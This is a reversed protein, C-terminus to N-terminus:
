AGGGNISQTSTYISSAGGGDINRTGTPITGGGGGGSMNITVASNSGNTILVKGTTRLDILNSIRVSVTNTNVIVITEPIIVESNNDILTVHVIDSNLNHNFLIQYYSGITIWDAITFTKQFVSPTSSGKINKWTGNDYVILDGNTPATITPKFYGQTAHNEWGFATQGNNIRYDNGEVATNATSGYTVNVSGSAITTGTGAKVIGLTAGNATVPTITQVVSGNYPGTPSVTIGSGFSLPQINSKFATNLITAKLSFGTNVNTIEIANDWKSKDKWNIDSLGTFSYQFEKIIFKPYSKTLPDDLFIVPNNTANFGFRVQTIESSSPFNVVLNLYTNNHIYGSITGETLGKNNNEYNYIYVRMFFMTSNSASTNVIPLTIKWNGTNTANNNGFSAVNELLNQNQLPIETFNQIVKDNFTKIGNIIEDGTKHVLNIDTTPLGEVYSIKGAEDVTLTKTGTTGLMLNNVYIPKDIGLRFRDAIQDYEILKSLQPGGFGYEEFGLYYKSNSGNVMKSFLGWGSLSVEKHTLKTKITKSQYFTRDENITDVLVIGANDIEELINLNTKKLYNQLSHDGWGFSQNWQTSTGTTGTSIIGKSYIGNVPVLNSNTHIDSVLLGGGVSVMGKSYIGKLPMKSSDAYSDSAILGGTLVTQSNGANLFSFPMASSFGKFGSAAHGVIVANFTPSHTTGLNQNVQDLFAKNTHTHSNTVITNWESQSINVYTPSIWPSWVGAYQGRSYITNENPQGSLVQYQQFVQNGNVYVILVGASTCPYNKVITAQANLLNHYIGQTTITNLSETGLETKSEMAMMHVPIWQKSNNLIYEKTNPLICRSGALLNSVNVPLINDRSFVLM